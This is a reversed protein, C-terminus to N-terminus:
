FVPTIPGVQSIHVSIQALNLSCFQFNKVNKVFIEQLLRFKNNKSLTPTQLVSDHQLQTDLSHHSLRLFPAGGQNGFM